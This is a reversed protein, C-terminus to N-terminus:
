GRLGNGPKVERFFLVPTGSKAPIIIFVLRPDNGLLQVLQEPLIGDHSVSVPDVYVRSRPDGLVYPAILTSYAPLQAQLQSVYSQAAELRPKDKIRIGSVEASYKDEKPFLVVRSDFVEYQYTGGAEILNDLLARLPGSPYEITVTEQRESQIFCIPIGYESHLRKVVEYVPTDKVSVAVRVALWDTGKEPRQSVSNGDAAVVSGVILMALYLDKPVM